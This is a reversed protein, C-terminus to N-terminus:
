QNLSAYKCQLFHITVTVVRYHSSHCFTTVTLLIVNCTKGISWTLQVPEAVNGVVDMGQISLSYGEETYPLLIANNSCPITTVNLMSPSHLECIASAEENFDWSVSLGEDSIVPAKLQIEPPTVDAAHM